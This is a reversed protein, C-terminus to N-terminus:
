RATSRVPSSKCCAVMLGDDARGLRDRALWSCAARAGPPAAGAAACLARGATDSIGVTWHL